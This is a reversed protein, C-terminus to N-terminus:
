PEFFVMAQEGQMHIDFRFTPTGERDDRCAILRERKGEPMGNLVPDSQNATERDSFYLRTVAHLLTGRMFVRVLIHPAQDQTDDYTVPGPRISKFSFLGEDNTPSRGFGVFAPDAEARRPDAPHNYIGNADAQWIEICGDTVPQGAGDLLYGEINIREGVTERQVLINEDGNVMGITFYPGVTQSPTQGFM